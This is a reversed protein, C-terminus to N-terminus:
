VFDLFDTDADINTVSVIDFLEFGSGLVASSKNAASADPTEGM